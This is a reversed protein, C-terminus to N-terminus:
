RDLTYFATKRARPAVAVRSSIPRKMIVAISLTRTQETVDGVVIVLIFHYCFVHMTVTSKGDACLRGKIDLEGVLTTTIWSSPILM